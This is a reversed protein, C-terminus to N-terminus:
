LHGRPWTRAALVRTSKPRQAGSQSYQHAMDLIQGRSGMLKPKGIHMIMSSNFVMDIEIFMPKFCIGVADSCFIAAEGVREQSPVTRGPQRTPLMQNTLQEPDKAEEQSGTLEM